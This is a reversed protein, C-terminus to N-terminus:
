AHEIEKIEVPQAPVARMQNLATLCYHTFWLSSFAFILTYLWLVVPLLVLAFVAAMAGAAWILSPMAGLYGTAIGIGILAWRHQKMVALREERSAHQALADFSMVRYNLWGWILPPLFFLLPLILWLPMSLLLAVAAVLTSSLTWLVSRWISAGERKQLSEFRRTAVLRVLTPTMMFAVVLMVFLILVPTALVIVIFPAVVSRLSGMGFRSFWDLVTSFFSSGSVWLWVAHVASDWFFYGLGLGLLTLFLLPLLSLGIVKPHICYLLARWFADFILMM